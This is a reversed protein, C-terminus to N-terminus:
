TSFTKQTQIISNIWEPINEVIGKVTMIDQPVPYHIDLTNSECIFLCACVLFCMRSKLVSPTWRLCHLKYLADIYPALVGAQPSSRSASQVIDWFMWIVHRANADQIYPNPRYACDLQVKKTLKYVSSFKLIWSIWYIARTFDRSEPRLCYALENLSVYLDLPDEEKILHRVYNSSPAKLNETITVQQFDHEPKITPLSPLKNKRTLAVTSAAECVMNRVPINNRMDTMALISYQDQYPAFKEYAQVLYLFVNPAARNIHKASSEFLTQWMSHVLGSCLLELTWYGAYDAHGLKINEELVKYVHTRLHGSFTFRQFDAVTRGDSIVVNM